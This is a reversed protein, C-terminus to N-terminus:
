DLGLLTLHGLRSKNMLGVDSNEVTNDKKILAFGGAFDRPIDYPDYGPDMAAFLKEFDVYRDEIISKWISRPLPQAIEQGRMGDVVSDVEKEYARRLRWTSGLHPDDFTHSALEKLHPAAELVSVPFGSPASPESEGLLEALRVQFDKGADKIGELKIYSLRWSKGPSRMLQMKDHVIKGLQLMLWSWTELKELPLNIIKM